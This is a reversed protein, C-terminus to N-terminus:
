PSVVVGVAAGHRSLKIGATPSGGAPYDFISASRCSADLAVISSGSITFDGLAGCSDDLQTHAVVKVGALRYILLGHKFPDADGVALQTGDWALAGPYKVRKLTINKFTTKGKPLEALAFQGNSGVGDVWLNGKDDYTVFSYETMHSDTHKHPSGKAGAYIGISGGGSSSFGNTVALDGTKPDVSCSDPYEGSDKLTAIRKTGGNAYELIDNDSQNTVWVNGGADVCEGQPVNFGTLTGTLKGGPFTYVYVADEGSDAVYLLANKAADRAMWSTQHARVTRALNQAPSQSPAFPTASGACGALMAIAAWTSLGCGTLRWVTKM